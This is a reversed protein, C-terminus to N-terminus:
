FLALHLEIIERRLPHLYFFLYRNPAGDPIFLWFHQALIIGEWAFEGLLAGSGVDVDTV